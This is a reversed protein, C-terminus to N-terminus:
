AKVETYSKLFVVVVIDHFLSSSICSLQSSKSKFTLWLKSVSITLTLHLTIVELQDVIIMSM